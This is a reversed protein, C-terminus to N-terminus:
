GQEGGLDVVRDACRQQGHVPDSAAALSGAQESLAAALANALVSHERLVRRAEDREREVDGLRERLGDCEAELDAIRNRDLDTENMPEGHDISLDPPSAGTDDNECTDTVVGVWDPVEIAHAYWQGDINVPSWSLRVWGGDPRRWRNVMGYTPDGEDFEAARQQSRALDDPHILSFMGRGALQDPTWGTMREWEGSAATITDNHIALLGGVTTRTPMQQGGLAYTYVTGRVFPWHAVTGGV